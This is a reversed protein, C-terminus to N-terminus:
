PKRRFFAKLTVEETGRRVKFEGSDGWRKQSMLRNLIESDTLAVGDLSVLIDGVKFGAAAAVSDPQVAIM